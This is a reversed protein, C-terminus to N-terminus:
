KKGGGKGFELKFNVFKDWTDDMVIVASYTKGTKESYLGDVACRGNKLLETVLPADPPKRKLAFFKNAKWIKFGCDQKDCFFGRGGERVPSGCRPCAGLSNSTKKAGSKIFLGAFEPKPANHSKVIDETMSAIDNIFKDGSLEGREVRLLKNEWESTLLASKLLEPL